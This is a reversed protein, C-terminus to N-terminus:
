KLFRKWPPLQSIAVSILVQYNVFADRHINFPNIVARVAIALFVFRFLFDYLILIFFLFWYYCQFPNKKARNYKNNNVWIMRFNKKIIGKFCNFKNYIFEWLFFKYVKMYIFLIYICENSEGVCVCIYYRDLNKRLFTLVDEFEMWTFM